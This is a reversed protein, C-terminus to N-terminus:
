VFEGIPLDRVRKGTAHFVANAIAPAVPPVGPEGVGSAHVSFPHNVIHTHVKQPFNDSRVMQYDNFNSEVVAGNEYTLGSHLALTMGMVASGEMQSRIREPNAAFGCDIAMHVEPVTIKGDVIKVHACTAVYTVFSRHVALGMGEGDPLDKGWGAKDAALNLVNKLRATDIPYEDYIEGYDWFDGPFGQNPPDLTRDSGILELHMEREDKGLEHALEGVFSQVAWARPINSVSRFWGIRTHAMAKGNEVSLNPIEFPIDVHGMGSEIFFQYGSDPAFTSLISPAVSNHRWGTVKNGADLAVEIREVSTTHNFCHRIDDERTWQVRVPTGLKQSLLAAEIAYDCKSKRGFGGGLLTVNVRVNEEPMQLAAALDQRTGYPSQVPAWIEAGEATVNAIAVPPEMSAHVMHAQTYEQSFVKEANAFAADPDGEKRLVNGPKRSTERMEAMHDASNFSSHPGDAWEIELADRGKIAADTNTAIVAIGGLPAFKAPPASIPLGMVHEVGPVKWTEAADYRVPRSGVAPPRAIAAVKMGPLVVDAGYVAKGTTIDHLDYMGVAGKGIYRFESEDRFTLDEFAPVPLAMAAGALDGFGFESGSGKVVHVGVQVTSVDVGWENAAAQALMQRVSAGMQRMSQIHHRMSRSGDTDQNGYKPEDGEAQVITVRDWDAGMEDALVMPLSTRSGTGMEARHAVITVAGDPEISVFIQPDYRLGHPMTEGGTKYRAFADAQTSFAAIAFGAASGQLFGRRSVNEFVLGGAGTTPAQRLAKEMYHLM